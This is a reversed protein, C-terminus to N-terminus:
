QAHRARTRKVLGIYYIVLYLYVGALMIADIEFNGFLSALVGVQSLAGYLLFLNFGAGLAAEHPVIGLVFLLYPIIAIGGLMFPIFPGYLAVATLKPQNQGISSRLWLFAVFGVLFWITFHGMGKLEDM